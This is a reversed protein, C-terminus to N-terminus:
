SSFPRGPDSAPRRLLGAAASPPSRYHGALQRVLRLDARQYATRLRGALHRPARGRLHRQHMGPRVRYPRM